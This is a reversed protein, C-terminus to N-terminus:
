YTQTDVRGAAATCAREDQQVVRQAVVRLLPCTGRLVELGHVAEKEVAGTRHHQDHTLDIRPVLV